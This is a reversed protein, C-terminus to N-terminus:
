ILKIQKLFEPTQDQARFTNEYQKLCNQIFVNIEEEDKNIAMELEEVNDVIVGLSNMVEYFLLSRSNLYPLWIAGCGHSVAELIATSNITLAVTNIFEYNSYNKATIDGIITFKNRLLELQKNNLTKLPHQRIVIDKTTKLKLLEDIFRQNLNEEHTFLILIANEFKELKQKNKFNAAEQNTIYIRSADVGQDLLTQKSYADWVAYADAVHAGNIKERDANILREELRAKTFMPRCAVVIFPIKNLYAQRAVIRAPPYTNATTFLIQKPKNIKLAHSVSIEKLLTATIQEVTNAKIAYDILSKAQINKKAKHLNIAKAFANYIDKIDLFSIFDLVEGQATPNIKRDLRGFYFAKNKKIEDLLHKYRHKQLNIPSSLWVQADIKKFDKKRFITKSIYKLPSLKLRIRSIVYNKSHKKQISIEPLQKKLYSKYYRDFEGTIIIEKEKDISRLYKIIELIYYYLALGQLDDLRIPTWTTAWLHHANEIHKIKSIAIELDDELAENSEQLFIDLQDLSFDIGQIVLENNVIKLEYSM